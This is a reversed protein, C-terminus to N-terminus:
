ENYEGLIVDSILWNGDINEVTLTIPRGIGEEDENSTIEVIEGEVGYKGEALKDIALIEIRDPWPSSVLRGPANEPDELWKEILDQSVLQGYNEEMSEKLIDEPALLSVSQLKGGFDEVLSRVEDLNEEDVEVEEIQKEAEAIKNESPTCGLLSVTMSLAIGYVLLRKMYDDGEM